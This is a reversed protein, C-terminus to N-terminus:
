QMKEGKYLRTFKICNQSLFVNKRNYTICFNTPPTHAYLTKGLDQLHQPQSRFVCADVGIVSSRRIQSIFGECLSLQQCGAGQPQHHFVQIRPFLLATWVGPDTFSWAVVVWSVTLTSGHMIAKPHVLWSDPKQKHTHPTLTSHPCHNSITAATAIFVIKM